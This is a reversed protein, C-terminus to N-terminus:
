RWHEVAALMEESTAWEKCVAAWQTLCALPM